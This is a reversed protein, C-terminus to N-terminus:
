LVLGLSIARIAALVLGISSGHNLARMSAHDQTTRVQELQTQLIEIQEQCTRMHADQMTKLVQLRGHDGALTGLREALALCEAHKASSRRKEKAAAYFPAPRLLCM